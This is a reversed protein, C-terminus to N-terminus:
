KLIDEILLECNKFEQNKFPCKKFYNLNYDGPKYATTHFNNKRIYACYSVILYIENYGTHLYNSFPISNVVEQLIDKLTLNPYYFKAIKIYDDISRYKNKDCQYGGRTFTTEKGITIGYFVDRLTKPEFNKFKIKRCKSYYEELDKENKVDNKKM